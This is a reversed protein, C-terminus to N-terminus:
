ISELEPHENMFQQIRFSGSEMCKLNYEINNRRKTYYENYTLDLYAEIPLNVFQEMIKLSNQITTLYGGYDHTYGFNDYILKRKENAKDCTKNWKSIKNIYMKYIKECDELRKSVKSKFAAFDEDISFKYTNKLQICYYGIGLKSDNHISQYVKYTLYDIMKEFSGVKEAFKDLGGNYDLISSIDVNKTTVRNYERTSNPRFHNELWDAIKQHREKRIRDNKEVSALDTIVVNFTSVYELILQRLEKLKNEM